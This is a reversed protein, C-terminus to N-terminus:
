EPPAVEPAPAESDPQPAEIEPVDVGSAGGEIEAEIEDILGQLNDAGADLAANVIVLVILILAALVAAIIGFIRGATALSRMRTTEGRDVKRQGITGLVIAAIALPLSIYFLAGSTFVLLLM